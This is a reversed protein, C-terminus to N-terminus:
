LFNIKTSVPESEPSYLHKVHVISKKRWWKLLKLYKKTLFSFIAFLCIRKGQM